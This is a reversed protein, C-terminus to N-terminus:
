YLKPILNPVGAQVVLPNLSSSNLNTASKIVFTILPKLSSNSLEFILKSTFFSILM